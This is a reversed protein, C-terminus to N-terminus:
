RTRTAATSPQARGRSNWRVPARPTSRWRGTLRLRASASGEPAQGWSANFVVFGLAAVLRAHAALGNRDMVPDDSPAGHFMVVVPWPGAEAPAYVDLTGPVLIPSASSEYALDDTEVVSLRPAPTPSPDFAAASAPTTAGALALSIGGVLALIAARGRAATRANM